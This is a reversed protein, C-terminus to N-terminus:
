RTLGVEQRPSATVPPSIARVSPRQTERVGALVNIFEHDQPLETRKAKKMVSSFEPDVDEPKGVVVTAKPDHGSSWTLKSSVPNFAPNAGVSRAYMERVRPDSRYGVQEAAISDPVGRTPPHESFPIPLGTLAAAGGDAYLEAHHTTSYRTPFGMKRIEGWTAYNEPLHDVIITELQLTGDEDYFPVSINWKPPGSGESALTMYMELGNQLWPNATYYGNPVDVVKHLQMPKNEVDAFHSIEHALTWELGSFDRIEGTAADVLMHIEISGAAPTAVGLVGAPFQEDIGLGIKQPDMQPGANDTPFITILGLREALKGGHIRCAQNLTRTIAEVAQETPEHDVFAVRLTQAQGSEDTYDFKLISEIRDDKMLRQYKRSLLVADKELTDGEKLAEPYLKLWVRDEIPETVIREEESEIIEKRRKLLPIAPPILWIPNLDFDHQPNSPVYDNPVEVEYTERVEIPVVVTIEETTMEETLYKVSIIVGRKQGLKIDLFDRASPPLSDPNDKYENLLQASSPYGVQQVLNELAILDDPTLIAESGTSTITPLSTGDVQANQQLLAALEGARRQALEVNGTNPIGLSLEPNGWEDSSTGDVNLELIQGRDRSIANLEGSIQNVLNVDPVFEGAANITQRGLDRSVERTVPVNRTITQKKEVTRTREVTKTPVGFIIDLTKDTGWRVGDLADETVGLTAPAVTIGLSLAATLAVVKAYIDPRPWIGAFGWRRVERSVPFRQITDVTGRHFTNTGLLRERLYIEWRQDETLNSSSKEDM